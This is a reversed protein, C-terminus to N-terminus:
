VLTMRARRYGEIGFLPRDPLSFSKSKQRQGDSSLSSLSHALPSPGTTNTKLKAALWRSSSKIKKGLASLGTIHLFTKGTQALQLGKFKVKDEYLTKRLTKMASCYPALQLKKITNDSVGLNRLFSVAEKLEQGEAIRLRDLFAKEAVGINQKALSSLPESSDLLDAAAERAKALKRSHLAGHISSGVSVAAGISGAVLLAAPAGAGSAAFGISIGTTTAGLATGILSKRAHISREQKIHGALAKLLPDKTAAKASALNNLAVVQKATKIASHVTSIAAVAIGVGPLAQAAGKSATEAFLLSSYTIEGAHEVLGSAQTLRDLAIQGKSRSLDSGKKGLLERAKNEDDVANTTAKFSRTEADFNKLLQQTEKRSKHAAIDKIAHYLTEGGEKIFSLGHSALNIGELSTTARAFSEGPIKYTGHTVKQGMKALKTGLLALYSAKGAIHRTQGIVVGAKDAKSAGKAFHIQNSGFLAQEALRIAKSPTHSLSLNQQGQPQIPLHSSSPRRFLASEVDPSPNFLAQSIGGYGEVNM